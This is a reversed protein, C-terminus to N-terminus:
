LPCGWCQLSTPQHSFKYFDYSENVQSPYRPPNRESEKANIHLRQVKSFCWTFYKKKLCSPISDLVCHGMHGSTLHTFWWLPYASWRNDTEKTRYCKRRFPIERLTRPLLPKPLPWFLGLNCKNYSRSQLEYRSKGGWVRDVNKIQSHVKTRSTKLILGFHQWTFATPKAEWAFHYKQIHM